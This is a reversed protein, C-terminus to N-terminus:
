QIISDHNGADACNVYKVESYEIPDIKENKLLDQKPYMPKEINYLNNFYGNLSILEDFTGQEVIIGDKLVFIKDYKKLINEALRHTVVISTINNMNLITEEVLSATENDLAAMAEDLILIPTSRILARAISIRQKEGGSILNGNEGVMSDVGKPLKDILNNLGSLDIASNIKEEDYENFLTINNKITDDFLFINQHVVSLLSFIDDKSIQNISMGDITIAGNYNDYQKLLLKLITSKGAGSNGVFAYKKNKEFKLSINKLVPKEENYNFSVNDIIICDNFSKKDIYNNADGTNDSLSLIKKSIEKMSKINNIYEICMYVPSVISNTLQVCAIMTGLTIEGKITFYVGSIFVSVFMLGGIIESICNICSSFVNFNFKDNEVTNNVKSYENWIKNEIKFTKIVEFGNFIDKIKITFKELSKSYIQKYKSLKKQFIKPIILTLLSTVILIISIKYSLIVLSIIAGILSVFSGFLLFINKFYDEEIMKLDNTIISIYKGSNDSVFESISKNIITSFINNKLYVMTKKIYLHKSLKSLLKIISGIIIYIITFIAVKYFQNIDKAVAVDLLAKFVFALCIDVLSAFLIMIFSLLLSFKYKLIFKKM